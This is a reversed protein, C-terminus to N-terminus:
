KPSSAQRNDAAEELPEVYLLPGEKKVIRVKSKPRIPVNTKAKWYEGQYIIYGDTDPFLGDITEAIDGVIGTIFPKRRRAELAKYAAFILFIGAVTPVLIVTLLLTNLWEASVIWPGPPILLISGLILSFFGGVGPLGFGPTFMEVILLMAGIGILIIAGVNAGAMGLGIIGLVLMIAGIVEGGYGPSSFAYILTYIGILLLLYALVPESLIELVTIRLSPSWSVVNAGQTYFLYNGRNTEVVTGNLKMQLDPISSVVLDVVGNRYAEEASLNLNELVFLRAATENRQHMRAREGIFSSLANLIKPDDIPQAGGLPQVSVPQASGVLTFPAMVAVHTSLLIFTGASWATSGTPYVYGIVPIDSQEISEVISFTADLNGGPTNITIIVPTESVSAAALAEKVLEASM